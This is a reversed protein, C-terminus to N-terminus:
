KEGKEGSGLDEVLKTPEEEELLIETDASNKEQIEADEQLWTTGDDQVLSISPNQDIEIIKRGHKSPDELFGEDDSLVVRERRRSQSTKVTQELKKV